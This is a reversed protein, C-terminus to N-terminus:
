FPCTIMDVVALRIVDSLSSGRNVEFFKALFQIEVELFLKSKESNLSREKGGSLNVSISFAVCTSRIRALDGNFILLKLKSVFRLVVGVLLNGSRDITRKKLNDQLCRWVKDWVEVVMYCSSCCGIGIVNQLSSIRGLYGCM